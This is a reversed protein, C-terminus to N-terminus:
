MQYSAVPMHHGKDTWRNIRGDVIAEPKAILDMICIKGPIHQRGLMSEFLISYCKLVM